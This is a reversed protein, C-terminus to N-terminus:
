ADSKELLIVFNNMTDYQDTRPIGALWFRYWIIRPQDGFVLRRSYDYAKLSSFFRRPFLSVSAFFHCLAKNRGLTDQTCSLRKSGRYDRPQINLFLFHLRLYISGTTAEIVVNKFCNKSLSTHILVNRFYSIQIYYLYMCLVHLLM